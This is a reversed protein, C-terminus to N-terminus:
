TSLLTFFQLSNKPLGHKKSKFSIFLLLAITFGQIAM